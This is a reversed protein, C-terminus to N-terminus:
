LFLFHGGSVKVFASIKFQSWWKKACQFDCKTTQIGKREVFWTFIKKKSSRYKEDAWEHGKDFRTLGVTQVHELCLRMVQATQVHLLLLPSLIKSTAARPSAVDVDGEVMHLNKLCSSSKTGFGLMLWKLRIQPLSGSLLLCFWCLFVSVTLCESDLDGGGNVGHQGASLTANADHHQQQRVAIERSDIQEWVSIGAKLEFLECLRPDAWVCSRSLAEEDSAGSCRWGRGQASFGRALFWSGVMRSWSFIERSWADMEGSCRRCTVPPASGRPLIPIIISIISSMSAWLLSDHWGVGLGLMCSSLFIKFSSSLIWRLTQLPENILGLM